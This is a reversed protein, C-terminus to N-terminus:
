KSIERLTINGLRPKDRQVVKDVGRGLVASLINLSANHDRDLVLGCHPCSHTRVALTKPVKEGCGSCEISTNRPNVRMFHVGAKEAKYECFGLFKSWSADSIAKALRHNKVMNKVRLDEM